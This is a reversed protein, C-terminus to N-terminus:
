VGLIQFVKFKTGRLKLIKSKVCKFNYAKQTQLREEGSTFNCIPQCAPLGFVNWGDSMYFKAVDWSTCLTTEVNSCVRLTQRCLCKVPILM